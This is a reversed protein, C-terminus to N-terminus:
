DRKKSWNQIVIIAGQLKETNKTQTLKPCGPHHHHHLTQPLSIPAPDNAQLCILHSLFISHNSVQATNSCKAEDQLINSEHNRNRPPQKQV